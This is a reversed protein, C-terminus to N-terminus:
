GVDGMEVLHLRQEVGAIIDDNTRSIGLVGRAGALRNRLRSELPDEAVPRVQDNLCQSNGAYPIRLAPEFRKGAVGGDSDKGYGSYGPPSEIDFCEGERAAEVEPQADYGGKPNVVGLSMDPERTVRICEQVGDLHAPPEHGAPILFGVGPTSPWIMR